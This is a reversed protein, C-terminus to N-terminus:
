EEVRMWSCIQRVAEFSRVKALARRIRAEQVRHTV